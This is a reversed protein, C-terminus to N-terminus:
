AGEMMVAEILSATADPTGRRVRHCRLGSLLSVVSLLLMLDHGPSVAWATSTDTAICQLRALEDLGPRFDELTAREALADLVFAFRLPLPGSVSWPFLNTPDVLRPKQGAYDVFLKAGARHVRRM